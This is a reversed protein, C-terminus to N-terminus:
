EVAPIMERKGEIFESVIGNALRLKAHTDSEAHLLMWCVSLVDGTGTTNVQRAVPVAAETTWEGKHYYGAGQAGQHVVVSEAGWGELRGLTTPLDPSGAFENLERANGHVINVWRLTARLAEKRERIEQADGVGWRPDWNLDLSVTMGRSRAAQFLAANGGLLMSRSFWVDARYLHDFGDLGRLDLEIFQLAENNPLCSLFHRQGDQFTLNISTGTAVARDKALFPAVGRRRLTEELREGLADTGVKGLFAVRAGLAAAICASNAGGGGMTERVASVSTEGDRFLRDGARLPATKIDRNINGVVCLSSGRFATDDLHAMILAM